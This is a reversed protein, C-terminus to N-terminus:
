HDREEGMCMGCSSKIFSPHCDQKKSTCSVRSLGSTCGFISSHVDRQKGSLFLAPVEPKNKRLIGFVTMNWTLLFNSLECSRFFNNSTVDRGTGYMHCVTVKVVRLDQKKDRVGNSKGTQVKMNWACFNEPDAAVWLKIGYNRPKSEPCKDTIQRTILTSKKYNQWQFFHCKSDSLVSGKGSNYSFDTQCLYHKNDATISNTWKKDGSHWFCHM